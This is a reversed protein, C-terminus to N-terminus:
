KSQAPNTALPLFDIKQVGKPPAFAFTGDTFTPALNWKTMVVTFQPAAALDTTTIM